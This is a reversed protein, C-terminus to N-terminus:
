VLSYVIALLACIEVSHVAVNARYCFFVHFGFNMLFYQLKCANVENSHDECPHVLYRIKMWVSAEARLKSTFISNYLPYKCMLDFQWPNNFLDKFEKLISNGCKTHHM